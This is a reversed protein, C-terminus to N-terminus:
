IIFFPMKEAKQYRLNVIVRENLDQKPVTDAFPPVDFPGAVRGLQIEGTLYTKIAVPINLAGRHNQLDFVPIAESCCGLPWGFELFDCIINDPYHLLLNRWLQVNLCMTVPLHVSFYNPQGSCGVVLSGECLFQLFFM